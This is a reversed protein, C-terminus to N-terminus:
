GTASPCRRGDRHLDGEGPRLIIDGDLGGAPTRDVVQQVRYAPVSRSRVAGVSCSSPSSHTTSGASSATVTSARSTRAMAICCRPSAPGVFAILRLDLDLSVLGDRLLPDTDERLSPESGSRRCTASTACCRPRGGRRRDERLRRFQEDPHAVFGCRSWTSGPGPTSTSGSSGPEVTSRSPTLHRTPCRGIVRRTRRHGGPRLARDHHM